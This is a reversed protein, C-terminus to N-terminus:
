GGGACPPANCVQWTSCAHDLKWSSLRRNGGGRGSGVATELDDHPSTSSPSHGTSPGAPGGPPKPPTPAGPWACSASPLQAPVGHDKPGSRTRVQSKDEQYLTDRLWHLSENAWQGRAHRAPDAPSTRDPGPSAVGPAAVASVPNGDLDSVYREILYVQSVHPFPLDEPAPMVQITRTTIRGNGRDTASCAVPVQDWPLADATVVKGNLDIQGLVDTAMSVEKTKAGAEAQAAAVPAQAAPGALAALLHRQNGEADKADRITKGDLRAPVLGPSEQGAGGRERAAQRSMLWRGVM